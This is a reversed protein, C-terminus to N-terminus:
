EKKKLIIIYYKAKGISVEREEKIIFDTAYQKISEKNSIIGIEKKILTKAQHFFEKIKKGANKDKNSTIITTAIKDISKKKFLTGLEEIRRCDTNITVRAMKANIIANRVNNLNPDFAHINKGGLLAAEIAIVGDKCFPDLLIEDNKYRILKLLSFALCANIGQNNIKVRYRRKCLKDLVLFGVLCVNDIIDTYIINKPDKLNVKHGKKYIIEGVAKEVDMSRFRHNGKRKCVVKFSGKTLFDIKSIKAELDELDKFKFKKILKYITDASKTNKKLKNGIVRGKCVKKGDLEKACIDEVGEITATIYEM